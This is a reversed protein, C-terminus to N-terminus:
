EKPRPVDSALGGEACADDMAEAALPAAADAMGAENEGAKSGRAGGVNSDVHDDDHSRARWAKSCGISGSGSKPPTLLREGGDSGDDDNAAPRARCVM